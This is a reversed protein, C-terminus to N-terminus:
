RPLGVLQGVAPSGSAGAPPGAASAAGGAPRLAWSPATGTAVWVSLNVRQCPQRTPLEQRYQYVTVADFSDGHLELALAAVHTLSAAEDSLPEHVPAQIFAVSENILDDEDHALQDGVRNDM